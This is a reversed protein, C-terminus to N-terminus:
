KILLMKKVSHFNGATISYFYTGSTLNSADFNFEYSGANMFDNLLTYVEQGLMNYITLKVSSPEPINFNIKTTPNFPNPYNQGLSFETPIATSVEEVDTLNSYFYVNDVYVKNPDSVLVIQAMHGRTTLGTFDSLPLDFGLWEGAGVSPFGNLDFTIEHEVDDGGGFAGDAGFDVLKIKFLSPATTPAQVWIDMHFHTMNTADITQSIFEIGAFVMNTYLKTDNGDIQVDSVDANDWDASWTDVPVNMYANSFLSIVDSPAVTPTPAAGPPDTLGPEGFYFFINDVYVTGNGVFKMQFVDALNVGTFSSLPIDASVWTETGGPPVLKVEAEIGGPSILFVGLNSSNPTWFDVHLYEMGAATLNQSSGLEIGQYNMNGYVMASDGLIDIFSFATSQGWGPNLNTGAIDTYADSYVSIVNSPSLAPTPAPVTPEPLSIVVGDPVEINDIYIINDQPRAYFDPLIVLQNYTNGIMQSFDFTIEEWQNIVSNSDILELPTGTAGEIKFHIPSIVPKYVMMKIIANNADVTFEGDDSTLFLAWPNGAQRATFKAVTASTNIGGPAPNAVFELPPNDANESVIWNWDAGVGSPEFDIDHSPQAFIASSMAVFFLMAFLFTLKNKMNVGFHNNILKNQM